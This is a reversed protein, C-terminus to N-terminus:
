LAQLALEKERKYKDALKKSEDIHGYYMRYEKPIRWFFDLKGSREDYAFCYHPYDVDDITIWTKREKKEKEIGIRQLTRKGLGRVKFLDNNCRFPRMAIIREATSKGIGQIERLKNFSLENFDEYNLRMSM